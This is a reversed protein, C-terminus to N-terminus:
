LSSTVAGGQSKVGGLGDIQKTGPRNKATFFTGHRGKNKSQTPRGRADHPRKDFEEESSDTTDSDTGFDRNWTVTDSPCCGMKTSVATVVFKGQRKRDIPIRCM